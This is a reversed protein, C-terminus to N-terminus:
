KTVSNLYKGVYMRSRNHFYSTFTNSNASNPTLNYHSQVRPTPNYSKTVGHFRIFESLVEVTLDKDNEMIWKFISRFQENTIMEGNPILGESQLEKILITNGSVM